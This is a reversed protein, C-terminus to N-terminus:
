KTKNRIELLRQEAANWTVHSQSADMARADEAAIKALLAQDTLKMIANDRVDLRSTAIKALLAQNTLKGVANGGVQRDGAIMAIEALLVQDTYTGLETQTALVVRRLHHKAPLKKAAAVRVQPDHDEAAVKALSAQDALKEIAAEQVRADSDKIAVEALVAQDNLKRVADRRASDDGAIRAIEALLAQDTYKEVETQTALVVQRLHHEAPLKKAAAVRVLGHEDEAAVKALLVQDTLYGVAAQRVRWDKDQVAIKALLVQDTLHVLADRRVIWNKDEVALKALLVQGTLNRVAAQHVDPIESSSLEALDDQTFVASHLLQALLEWCQVHAPTFTFYLVGSKQFHTSWTNKALTKGDQSLVFTVSEGPDEVLGGDSVRRYMVSEPSWNWDFVIRPFRNRIRSERIALKIRALSREADFTIGEGLRALRKLAPNADDMAAIARYRVRQDKDM